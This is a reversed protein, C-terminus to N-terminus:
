KKLPGFFPELVKSDFSEFENNINSPTPIDFQDINYLDFAITPFKKKWSEHAEKIIKEIYDVDDEQNDLSITIPFSHREFFGDFWNPQKGDKDHYTPTCFCKLDKAKIVSKTSVKMEEILLRALPNSSPYNEGFLVLWAALEEETGSICLSHAGGHHPCASEVKILSLLDQNSYLLNCLNKGTSTEQPASLDIRFTKM